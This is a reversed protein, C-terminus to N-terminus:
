SHLSYNYYYYCHTNRTGWIPHASSAYLFCQPILPVPLLGLLTSDSLIKFQKRRREKKMNSVKNGKNLNKLHNNSTFHKKNETKKKKYKTKTHPELSKNDWSNGTSHMM